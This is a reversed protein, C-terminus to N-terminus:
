TLTQCIEDSIHGNLTFTNVNFHGTFIQAFVGSRGDLYFTGTSYDQHIVGPVNELIAKGNDPNSYTVKFRGTIITKVLNGDNDYFDTQTANTDTFEVLTVFGCTFDAGIFDFVLHTREVTAASAPLALGLVLLIGLVLSLSRRM